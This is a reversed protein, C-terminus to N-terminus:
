FVLGKQIYTNFINVLKHIRELETSIQQNQFNYDACGNTELSSWDIYNNREVIVRFASYYSSSSCDRFRICGVMTLFDDYNMPNFYDKYITLIIDNSGIISLHPSMIKIWGFHIIFLQFTLDFKLEPNFNFLTFYIRYLMRNIDIKKGNLVIPLLKPPAPCILPIPEHSPEKMVKKKFPMVSADNHLPLKLSELYDM